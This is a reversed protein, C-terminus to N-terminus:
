PKSPHGCGGTRHLYLGHTSSATFLLNGAGGPSIQFGCDKGEAHSILLSALTLLAERNGEILVSDDLLAVTVTIGKDTAVDMVQDPSM